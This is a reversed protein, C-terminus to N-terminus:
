LEEEWGGELPDPTNEEPLPPLLDERELLLPLSLDELLDVPTKTLVGVLPVIRDLEAIACHVM